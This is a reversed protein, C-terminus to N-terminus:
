RDAPSREPRACLPVLVRPYWAAIRCPSARIVAAPMVLSTRNSATEPDISSRMSEAYRAFYLSLGYRPSIIPARARAAVMFIVGRPRSARAYATRGSTANQARLAGATLPGAAVWSRASARDTRARGASPADVEEERVEAGVILLEVATMAAFSS